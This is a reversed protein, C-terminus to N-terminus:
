AGIGLGDDDRHPLQAAACLNGHAACDLLALREASESSENFCRTGWIARPSSASARIALSQSPTKSRRRCALPRSRSESDNAAAVQDSPRPSERVNVNSNTPVVIQERGSFDACFIRSVQM